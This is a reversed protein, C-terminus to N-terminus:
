RSTNSLSPPIGFETEWEPILEQPALFYKASASVPKWVGGEKYFFGEERKEVRRVGAFTADGVSDRAEELCDPCVIHVHDENWEHDSGYHDGRHYCNKTVMILSTEVLGETLGGHKASYYSFGRADSAFYSHLSCWSRHRTAIESLFCLIREEEFNKVADRYRENAAEVEAESVEIMGLAVVVERASVELKGSLASELIARTDVTM